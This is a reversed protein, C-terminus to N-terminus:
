HSFSLSIVSLTSFLKLDNWEGFVAWDCEGCLLRCVSCGCGGGEKDTGERECGRAVASGRVTRRIDPAPLLGSVRNSTWPCAHLTARELPPPLRHPRPHLLPRPYWPATKLPQPRNPQLQTHRRVFVLTHAAMDLHLHRRLDDGRGAGSPYYISPLLVWLIQHDPLRIRHRRHLITLMQM